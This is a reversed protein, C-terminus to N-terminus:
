DYPDLKPDFKEKETNEDILTDPLEIMQLRDRRVNQWQKITEDPEMKIEGHLRAEASKVDNELAKVIVKWGTDNKLQELAAIISNKKQEENKFEIAM